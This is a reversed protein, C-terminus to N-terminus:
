TQISSTMLHRELINFLYTLKFSSSQQALIFSKFLSLYIGLATHDIIM